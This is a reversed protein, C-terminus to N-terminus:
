RGPPPTPAPCPTPYNNQYNSITNTYGDSRGLFYCGAAVTCLFAVFAISGGDICEQEENSLLQFNNM